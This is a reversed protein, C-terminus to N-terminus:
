FSFQTLRSFYNESPPPLPESNNNGPTPNQFQKGFKKEPIGVFGTKRRIPGFCPGFRQQIFMGHTTKNSHLFCKQIRIKLRFDRLLYIKIEGKGCMARIDTNAECITCSPNRHNWGKQSGWSLNYVRQLMHWCANHSLTGM